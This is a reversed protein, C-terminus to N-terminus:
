LGGSMAMLSALLWALYTVKCFSNSETPLPIFAILFTGPM